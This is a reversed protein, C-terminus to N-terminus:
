LRKIGESELKLAGVATEFIKLARDIDNKLLLSLGLLNYTKSTYGGFRESM